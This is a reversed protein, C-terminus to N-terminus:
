KHYVQQSYQRYDTVPASPLPMATATRAVHADRLLDSGNTAIATVDAAQVTGRVGLSPSLSSPSSSPEMLVVAEAMPIHVVSATQANWDDPLVEAVATAVSYDYVDSPASPQSSVHSGTGVSETYIYTDMYSSSSSSETSSPPASPPCEDLTMPYPQYSENEGLVVDGDDMSKYVLMLTTAEPTTTCCGNTELSVTLVHRIQMAHGQYSDATLQHPIRPLDIAHWSENDVGYMRTESDDSTMTVQYVADDTSQHFINQSNQTTRGRRFNKVQRRSLKDLERFRRADFTATALVTSLSESHGHSTWEVKQVLEAKVKNVTAASKNQARWSVGLGKGHHGSPSPKITTADVKCEMTIYGMYRCCCCAHIAFDEPPIHLSTDHRRTTSTIAAINLNQSSRPNKHFISNPQAYIEAVLEYTVECHSQGKSIKKLSSPLADPLDLAFPFEFQGRQLKGEQFIHLPCDLSVVDHTSHEYYDQQRSTTKGHHDREDVQRTHHVVLNEQGILKLQISRASLNTKTVSLYVRGTVTAGAKYFKAHQEHRNKKSAPPDDVKLGITIPQNGM